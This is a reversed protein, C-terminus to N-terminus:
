VEELYGRMNVMAITDAAHSTIEVRVQSLAPFCPPMGFVVSESSDKLFGEHHQFFATKITGSVNDFNSLLRYVGSKDKNTASGGISFKFDTIVLKHDAPVMFAANIARTAGTAIRSYDTGAGDFTRIDIDGAAVGGGGIQSARFYNVALMTNLEGCDVATTGDMEIEMVQADGNSDLYGIEVKQIGTGAVTDDTSSSVVEMRTASAPFEYTTAKAWLDGTAAGIACYGSKVWRSSGTIDGGGVKAGYPKTDVSGTIQSIQNGNTQNASTALTSVDVMGSKVNIDLAGSTVGVGEDDEDIIKVYGAGM